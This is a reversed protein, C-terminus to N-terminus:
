WGKCRTFVDYSGSLWTRIQSLTLSEDILTRPIVPTGVKVFASVASYQYSYGAALVSAGTTPTFHKPTGFPYAFDTIIIGLKSEITQKDAVIEIESEPATLTAVNVHNTTHGGITHGAAALQKAGDWTLPTRESLLLNDRVYVAAAATGAVELLGSNIFFLAQIDHKALEPLVVDVWSQYGDDFTLLVNIKDAAFNKSHFEHPSIIHSELKIQTLVAALWGSDQVDHFCLVRVLPGSQRQRQRYIAAIGSYAFFGILGNRILQKM